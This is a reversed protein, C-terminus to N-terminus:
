FLSDTDEAPQPEASKESPPDSESHPKNDFIPFSLLITTGKETSNKVHIEGRNSCVLNYVVSLGLGSGDLAIGVLEDNKSPSVFPDFIRDVESAKLGVGSDTVMIELRGREQDLASQVCIMGVSNIANISNNLLEILIQTLDSSSVAILPAELPIQIDLHVEKDLPKKLMESAAYAAEYPHTSSIEEKSRGFATLSETLTVGRKAAKLILETSRSVKTNEFHATLIQILETSGIITGLINNFNHAIGAAFLAVTEMRKRKFLEKYSNELARMTLLQRIQANLRAKLICANIPKTIYDNGGVELGEVLDPDETKATVFLIPLENMTYHNRVQRCVEVGSLHPMMIDLLAIDIAGSLLIDLAEQGDRAEVINPAMRKVLKRLIQRNSEIDDAILVTLQNSTRKM